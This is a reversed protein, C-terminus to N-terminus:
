KIGHNQCKKEVNTQDLYSHPHRHSCDEPEDLEHVSTIRIWTPQVGLNAVSTLKIRSKPSQTNM